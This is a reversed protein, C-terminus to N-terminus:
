KGLCSERLVSAAPYVGLIAEDVKSSPSWCNTQVGSGLGFDECGSGLCLGTWSGTGPALAKGIRGM